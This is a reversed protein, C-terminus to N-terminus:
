QDQWRKLERDHIFDIQRLVTEWPTDIGAHVGRDDVYVLALRKGVEGMDIEDFPMGNRRMWNAIMKATEELEQKTRFQSSMRSSWIVIDLGRDHLQHLFERAGQIPPGMQPYNFECITGDFDILACNGASRYMKM